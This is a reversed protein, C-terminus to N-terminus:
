QLWQQLDDLLNTFFGEPDVQLAIWANAHAKALHRRDCCTQGRTWQGQTEVRVLARQCFLTEPYFLYSLTAADHVLFGPVGGTERYKLATATMFQCLDSLFRAGDSDPRALRIAAAMDPTFILRRTVDLPMIVLDRRSNFVIEAAEPDFWVNFEAHPTVNGPCTLAGAMVVIERAQGLIGPCKQEAAALNTLPAIAVLTVVGPNERLAAIILDDAAPATAFDHTAPPLTHSLNGMGDAGHIHSADANEAQKVAVSRGVPVDSRGALHLLQSASTFTRRAAVNGSATTVALLEANGQKVLSLLWLLAVADDGGPDTDLIIKPVSM